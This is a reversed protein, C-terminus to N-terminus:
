HNKKFIRNDEHNDVQYSRDFTRRRFRTRRFASFKRFRFRTVTIAESIYFEFLSDKM